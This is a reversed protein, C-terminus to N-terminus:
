RQRARASRRELLIMVLWFTARKLAIAAVVLASLLFVFEVAPIMPQQTAGQM